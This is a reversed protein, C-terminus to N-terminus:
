VDDEEKALLTVAATADKHDRGVGHQDGKRENGDLDPDRAQQEDEHDPLHHFEMETDQSQLLQQYKPKRALLQPAILGAIFLQFPHLVTIPIAALGANSEQSDRYILAVMPIGVAMTKQSAGFLGAIRDEWTFGLFKPMYALFATTLFLFHVGFVM